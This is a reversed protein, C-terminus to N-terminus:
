SVNSVITLTNDSLTGSFARAQVNYSGTTGAGFNYGVAVLMEESAALTISHGSDIETAGQITLTWNVVKSENMNNKIRFRYTKNKGQAGVEQLDRAIIDGVWVTMTEEDNLDGSTASANIFYTDGDTYNNAFYILTTNKPPISLNVSSKVTDTGNYFSWSANRTQNNFNSTIRFGFINLDRSAYQRQLSSVDIPFLAAYVDLRPFTFNSGTGACCSHEGSDRVLQGTEIFRERIQAPILTRNHELNEYQLLLAVAGAVHPAAWSSAGENSYGSVNSTYIFAGPALLSLLGYRNARCPITDVDGPQDYCLGWNWSSINYDYTM